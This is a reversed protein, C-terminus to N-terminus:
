KDSEQYRAQLKLETLGEPIFVLAVREGFRITEKWELSLKESEVSALTGSPTIMPVALCMANTAPGGEATLQMEEETWELYTIRWADRCKWFDLWQDLSWIPVENM